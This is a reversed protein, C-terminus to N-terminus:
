VRTVTIVGGVNTITQSVAGATRTGGVADVILPNGTDCGVLQFMDSVNGQVATSTAELALPAISASLYTTSPLLAISSSISAISASLELSPARSSLLVDLYDVKAARGATWESALAPATPIAAVVTYTESEVNAVIEVLGNYTTAGSKAVTYRLFGVTDTNAASLLLDYHGPMNTADLEFLTGDLKVTPTGAQKMLYITLDALLAGTVAVGASTVLRIPVRFQTSQKIEM